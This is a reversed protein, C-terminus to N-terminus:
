VVKVNRVEMLVSSPAASSEFLVTPFRNRSYMVRNIRNHGRYKCLHVDGPV